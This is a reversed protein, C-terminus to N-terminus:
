TYSHIALIRESDISSNDAGLYMMNYGTTLMAIIFFTFETNVFIYNNINFLNM